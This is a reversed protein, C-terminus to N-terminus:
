DSNLDQDCTKTKPLALQRQDHSEHNEGKVSVLAPETCRRQDREHFVGHDIDGHECGDNQDRDLQASVSRYEFRGATEQGCFSSGGTQIKLRRLHQWKSRQCEARASNMYGCATVPMRLEEPDRAIRQFEM